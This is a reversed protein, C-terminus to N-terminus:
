LREDRLGVQSPRDTAAMPPAVGGRRPVPPRLAAPYLFPMRILLGFSFIVRVRRRSRRMGKLTRLFQRFEAVDEESEHGTLLYFLKVERIKQGFLRQLLGVVDATPLSKHLWARQRESIGEVGLTYSRKDAAVEAELLHPTHQLIDARQSKLGVRDYLRHLAPLLALIDAHTNFNFSYLNLEESGQAQKVRRAADLLDVLPIERYPKRDYAEFCFACFAPCGYAIQLHATHAEPSNLLPYDVPLHHAQPANCTAKITVASGRAAWFGEVEAAARALVERKAKTPATEM